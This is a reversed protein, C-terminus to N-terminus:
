EISGGDYDAGCVECLWEDWSPSDNDTIMIWGLPGELPANHLEGCQLCEYPHLEEQPM